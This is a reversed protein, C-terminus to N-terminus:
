IASTLDSPHPPGLLPLCVLFASNLVSTPLLSFTELCNFLVLFATNLNPLSLVCHTTSSVRPLSGPAPPCGSPTELIRWHSHIFTQGLFTSIHIATFPHMLSKLPFVALIHHSDPDPFHLVTKTASSQFLCILLGPLQYSAPSLRPYTLDSTDTSKNETEPVDSALYSFLGWNPTQPTLVTLPLVCTFAAPFFNTSIPFM